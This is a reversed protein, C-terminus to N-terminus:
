LLLVGEPISFGRLFADRYIMKKGQRQLLTPKLAIGDGCLISLNADLVTGPPRKISESNTSKECVAEIIKIIEGNYSFYAGPSPSFAKIQAHIVSAPNNWNIKEEEKTLKKAYEIGESGQKTYTAEGNEILDIAECLMEGGLDAMHDHLNKSTWDEPIAVAKSLIIDGTDLGTDMRMICLKTSTDGAMITRQIPAAGRWRPLDSPHINIACHKPIDLVEQRFILGYAAVVLLDPQLAKLANINDDNKFTIPTYVDISNEDALNHIPSKNLLMGRGSPSPPKTYVAVVNYEKRILASLAPVAFHPSGM